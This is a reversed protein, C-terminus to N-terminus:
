RLREELDALHRHLDRVVNSIGLMWTEGMSAVAAVISLAARHLASLTTFSLGWSVVGYVAWGVALALIVSLFFARVTIVGLM